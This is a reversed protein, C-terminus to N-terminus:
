IKLVPSKWASRPCYLIFSPKKKRLMIISPFNRESRMQIASQSGIIITWKTHLSIINKAGAVTMMQLEEHQHSSAWMKTNDYVAKSLSGLAHSEQWQLTWPSAYVAKSKFQELKLSTQSLEKCVFSLSVNSEQPFLFHHMNVSRVRWDCPLHLM